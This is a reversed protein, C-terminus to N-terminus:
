TMNQNLGILNGVMVHIFYRIIALNMDTKLLRKGNLLAIIYLNKIEPVIFTAKVNLSDLLPIANDLHSDQGDDFTLCVAAKKNEPWKFNTNLDQSYSFEASVIIVLVYLFIKKM